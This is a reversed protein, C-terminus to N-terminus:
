HNCEDFKEQTADVITPCSEISLVLAELHCYEFITMMRQKWTNYNKRNFQQSGELLLNTLSTMVRKEICFVHIDSFACVEFCISSLGLFFQVGLISSLFGLLFRINSKSDVLEFISAYFVICRFFHLCSLQSRCFGM